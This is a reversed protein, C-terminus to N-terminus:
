INPGNELYAQSHFTLSDYNFRYFVNSGSKVEDFQKVGVFYRVDESFKIYLYGCCLGTKFAGGGYTIIDNIGLRVGCSTSTFYDLQASKLNQDGQGTDKTQTGSDQNANLGLTKINFRVDVYRSMVGLLKHM